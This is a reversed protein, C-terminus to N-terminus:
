QPEPLDAAEAECDYLKAGCDECTKQYWWFSTGCDPCQWRKKREELYADLGTRKITNLNNMMLVYLPYFGGVKFPEFLECPCEECEICTELGREMACARVKCETCCKTVMDSKCGHCAILDAPKGARKAIEELSGNREAHVFECAGCYIGCYSDYRGNNV